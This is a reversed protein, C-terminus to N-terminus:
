PSTRYVSADDVYFNEGIDPGEIYLTMAITDCTRATFSGTLQYWPLGDDSDSRVAAIPSYLATEDTEGVCRHKFALSAVQGDSVLRVWATARYTEGPEVAGLLDYGPGEYVFDDRSSVFLSSTGSHPNDGSLSLLVNGMSIWRPSAGEFGPDEILNQPAVNGADPPDGPGADPPSGASGGNSQGGSGAGGGAGGTSQNTSADPESSSAGAAGGPLDGNNLRDAALGASLGDFDSLSCRSLCVTIGLLAAGRPGLTRLLRAPSAALRAPLLSRMM